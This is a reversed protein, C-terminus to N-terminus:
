RYIPIRSVISSVIKICALMTKRFYYVTKKDSFVVIYNALITRVNEFPIAIYFAQTNKYLVHFIIYFYVKSNNIKRKWLRACM